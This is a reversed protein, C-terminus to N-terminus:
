GRLATGSCQEQSVQIEDVNNVATSAPGDDSRARRRTEIAGVSASKARRKACTTATVPSPTLSM